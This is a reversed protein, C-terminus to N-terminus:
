AVGVVCLAPHSAGVAHLAAHGVGVVNPTPHGSDGSFVSFVPTKAVGVVSGVTQRHPIGGSIASCTLLYCRVM